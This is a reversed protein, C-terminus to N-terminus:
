DKGKKNKKSQKTNTNSQKQSTNSQKKNANSQKANTNSDQPTTNTDPPSQATNSDTTPEEDNDKTDTVQTQSSSKDAKGKSHKKGKKGGEEEESSFTASDGEIKLDFDGGNTPKRLTDTLRDMEARSLELVFVCGEPRSKWDQDIVNGASHIINNCQGLYSHKIFLRVIMAVQKTFALKMSMSKIAEEAQKKADKKADIKIHCEKMCAEVREPPHPLKTKPDM